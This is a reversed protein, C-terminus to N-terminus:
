RWPGAAKWRKKFLKDNAIALVVPRLFRRTSSSVESFTKPVDNLRTRGIFGMWQTNRANDKGFSSEFVTPNSTISMNRNSFTKTVAKALIDGRFDYTNSLLWIDYFDKMRSNLVGLKVMAHYKEAIVSEKSYGRLKARPFDLLGPYVLSEPGPIIMDGFGIDMQISVRANGLNSQLKVRAGGYGADETIRNVTVSEADFAMGDPTTSVRCIKRVKSAIADLDNDMSGLCDIDRTPRSATGSWVPLMLAGKLIFRKAHASRSLRYIFREIAFYQLLENFPRDTERAKDLLRQHVSAALGRVERPM